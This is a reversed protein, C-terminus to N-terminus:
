NHNPHYCGISQVMCSFEISNQSIKEFYQYTKCVSRVDNLLSKEFGLNKPNFMMSDNLFHLAIIFLKKVVNSKLNFSVVSDLDSM